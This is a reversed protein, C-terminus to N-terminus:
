DLHNFYAPEGGWIKLHEYKSLKVCQSKRSWRATFPEGAPEASPICNGSWGDGDLVTNKLKQLVVTATGRTSIVRYFHVITMSYGWECILITGPKLEDLFYNYTSNAM